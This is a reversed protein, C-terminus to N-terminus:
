LIIKGGRQQIIGVPVYFYAVIQGMKVFGDKTGRDGMVMIKKLVFSM